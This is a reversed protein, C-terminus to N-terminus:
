AMSHGPRALPPGRCVERPGAACPSVLALEGRGSGAPPRCAPEARVSSHSARVPRRSPAFCRARDAVLISRLIGQTRSRGRPGSAVRGRHSRPGPHLRPRRPLGAPEAGQRFERGHRRLREYGIRDGSLLLVAAYEFWFHGADTAALKVAHNYCDAAKGWDRHAAHALGQRVPDAALLAAVDGWFRQWQVREADPLKMLAAQDRVGSLVPDTEWASLSWGKLSPLDLAGGDKMLRARLELNARLWDLAQRRLNVREQEGPRPEQSGRGVLAQLANSAADYRCMYLQAHAMVLNPDLRVAQQFQDLAEVLRGKARLVYGLYCHAWASSGPDLRIAQQFHGIAEDHQGKTMLVRGLNFHSVASNPELQVAQQSHAIAEDLRGKTPLVRGLNGHAAALTPKLRIADQFHGIAEDWQGKADLAIGLNNHAAALTPELRIADRCHDIAEDLRGKLRLVEGLNSHFVASRGPDLRIAEQYHGIAEDLRGMVGLTLGMANYVMSAEPRLALAARYFGIAEDHRRSEFLAYGLEYNLWFDQPYRAQAATLLSVAEGDTKPLVRGLATLLQPSLGDVPLEQFLALGSDNQWFKPERLSDRLPDPDAGRAVALLWERRAQDQTISAWDDLAAVIELRVVSHRVQAAVEETNDGKRSLGAKAFAEEYLPEAGVSEPRGKMPSAALLRAADLNVVLALDARAQDVQRRLDDPGDTHLRQRVQELLEHAEHFHFQKSFSGAQAVTTGVETRLEARRETRQQVLWVSGGSALGVLALATAAPAAATPNRRTWRLVRELSGVPRAVIPENRQFRHLDDALAAASAYRRRPDKELCKLCITEPNRPVAANLRSPPVPDQSIM